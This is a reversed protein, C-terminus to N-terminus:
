REPVVILRDNAENFPVLQLRGGAMTIPIYPSLPKFLYSKDNNAAAMIDMVASRYAEGSPMNGVRAVIVSASEARRGTADKHGTFRALSNYATLVTALPAVAVRADQLAQATEPSMDLASVGALDEPIRGAADEFAPAHEAFRECLAQVFTDVEPGIADRLIGERVEALKATVAGENITNAAIAQQLEAVAADYQEQDTTAAVKREADLTSFKLSSPKLEAKQVAATVPTPIAVGSNSVTKVLQLMEATPSIM